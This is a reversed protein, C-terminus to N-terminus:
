LKEIEMNIGYTKDGMANVVVKMINQAETFTKVEDSYSTMCGIGEVYEDVKVRFM